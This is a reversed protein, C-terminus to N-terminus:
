NSGMMHSAGLYKNTYIDVEKITLQCVPRFGRAIIFHKMELQSEIKRKSAIFHKLDPFVDNIQGVLGKDGAITRCSRIVLSYGATASEGYV